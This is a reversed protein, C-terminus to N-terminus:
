HQIYDDIIYTTMNLKRFFGKEDRYIKGVPYELDYDYVVGSNEDLLFKHPESANGDKDPYVAMIKRVKIKQLQIKDGAIEEDDMKKKYAPGPIENLLDNQNFQFCSYRTFLMNHKKYLQCDVAAEKMANLFSDKLMQKEMAAKEIYHDTAKDGNKKLVKLRWVDVVRQNRPLDKHSCQRIARGVIQKITEEDWYPELIIVTRMNMLDIGEAGASSLLIVKIQSGDINNSGNFIQLNKKRNSIDVDGHFEIYGQRSDNKYEVIGMLSLYIKFVQIGEMHVYNSYFLVKGQSKHVLFLAATMKASCQYLQTYLSSKKTSSSQHFSMFDGQFDKIFTNLDDQLTHGNQQDKLHFSLFYDLTEKLYGDCSKMYESIRKMLNEKENEDKIKDLQKSIKGSEIREIDSVRFNSPRPRKEGNIPFAFNSTQRTYTKYIKSKGRSRSEIKKEIIEFHAYITDQHEEMPLDLFFDRRKAYLSPNAGIYYSVLGLIRKQFLYKHEPNLSPVGAQTSLFINNFQNEHEPLSGPRLLNFLLSLEFPEAKMPTATLAIVRVDNGERKENMIHNYITLAKKGNNKMNTYVNHIFNHAEDIIYLSKRSSDVKKLLELFQRDATPSNSSIFFIKSKIEDKQEASLWDELNKYWATEKLTAPLIVFVNWDPNYNYLVQILNVATATKGTGLGHYVLIDKFPSNYELFRSVFVQYEKLEKKMKISCPDINPDDIIEDLMFEKFRKMIWIPFLKGKEPDNPKIYKSVITPSMNSTSTM